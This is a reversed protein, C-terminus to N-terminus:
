GLQRMEATVQELWYAMGMERYMAMATALHEPAHERDGTRRHMKGLGLHCHAILPRMGRPEALALAQRYYGEADEDGVAAAIDGNLCLAHAEAGRAGLRRTLALAERAFGTAEEIRGASLYTTGACLLILAPWHHLQRRRFEGVAGAVHTLAENVRGVLAYATGLSADVVATWLVFQWKRCLDLCRELVRTARPADGCRLYTLGLAFLGFFLTFPQDAAEAIRITTEAHRIAEDFQGHESLVDALYAESLASQIAPAGFRETRQDGGLAANRELLIAADRFAGRHLHTFGLFSTAVVEISRDGVTHAIALAEEGFGIAGDYDGTLICQIVM